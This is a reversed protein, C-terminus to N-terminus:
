HRLIAKTQLKSQVLNLDHTRNKIAKNNKFLVHKNV